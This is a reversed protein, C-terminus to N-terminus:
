RGSGRAEGRHFHDTVAVRIKGLSQALNGRRGTQKVGFDLLAGAGNEIGHLRPTIIRQEFESFTKVARLERRIL